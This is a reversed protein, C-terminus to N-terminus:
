FPTGQGNYQYAAYNYCRKCPPCYRSTSDFACTDCLIDSNIDEVKSLIKAEWDGETMHVIDDIAGQRPSTSWTVIDCAFSQIEARTKPTLQSASLAGRTKM